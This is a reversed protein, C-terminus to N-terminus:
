SPPSSYGFRRDFETIIEKKLRDIEENTIQSIQIKRNIRNYYGHLYNTIYYLHLAKNLSTDM